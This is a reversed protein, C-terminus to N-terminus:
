QGPPLPNVGAAPKGSGTQADARGAKGVRAQGRPIRRKMKEELDTWAQVVQRVDQVEKDTINKVYRNNILPYAHALHRAERRYIAAQLRFAQNAESWDEKSVDYDCTDLARDLQTIRAVANALAKNRKARWREQRKANSLAM